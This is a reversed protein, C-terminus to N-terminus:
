KLDATIEHIHNLIDVDAQTMEVGRRSMVKRATEFFKPMIVDSFGAAGGDSFSAVFNRPFGAGHINCGVGVVTATNFMTNIGAKSHDGMILGCFQLGTRLFRRTPYNWLRIESYDNKLNSSTCGAGLNCWEGIVADGLYGDHQKNSNATFIANGVEGGVKCKPGLNTGPLLRAGARVKSGNDICVPGRLVVAEQVEADRGIYVPGQRTNLFCGEVDAGEEIFVLAPDGIVTCSDPIPQSKRGETLVFFDATILEKSLTFLHYPQRIATVALSVSAEGQSREGRWAIPAGDHQDAIWQGPALAAVAKVLEGDPMVHGAIYLDAAPDAPFKSQLYEETLYSIEADPLCRQWHDAITGIGTRLLAVPRTFTLPLLNDRVEKIDVLAIKM